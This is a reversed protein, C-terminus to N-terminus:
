HFLIINQLYYEEDQFCIDVSPDNYYMTQGNFFYLANVASFSSYQTQLSHALHRRITICLRGMTTCYLSVYSRRQSPATSVCLEKEAFSSYQTQLSPALHRRITICLRGM